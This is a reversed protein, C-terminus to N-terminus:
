EAFDFVRVFDVLFADGASVAARLTRRQEDNPQATMRENRYPSCETTLLLFEPINSVAEGPASGVKDGHRRGDIFVTYGDPEWLLGVTHFDDTGVTATADKSYASAARPTRFGRYDGAYGNMHFCHAIIEGPNFSEMIDHEIGSVSPDLTCGQQESQMWFASWWGPMRQLRFRCEYYGFRHRFKAPQRKPLPFFGKRNEDWPLDWMLEGTQLQPSVFQGNPLEKIGLRCLGDRVEVCGDEPAAFWPARRGWFNTRYSWKSADLESGRFEDNWVLRFERDAPLLSPAEGSVPNATRCDGEAAAPTQMTLTCVLSAHDSLTRDGDVYHSSKKDITFGKALVNDITHWDRCELIPIKQPSAYDYGDEVLPLFESGDKSNWDGAIIVYKENRFADALEKIQRIRYPTGDKDKNVHDLHTEVLHVTKGDIVYECDIWYRVQGCRSFRRETMKVFRGLQPKTWIANWNYGQSSGAHFNAFGAKRFANTTPTNAKDGLRDCYEAFGVIDADTRKLVELWKAADSYKENPKPSRGHSFHGINWQQFKISVPEADAATFAFAALAAFFIRNM